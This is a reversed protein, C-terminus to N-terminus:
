REYTHTPVPPTQVERKGYRKSGSGAGKRLPERRKTGNTSCFIVFNQSIKRLKERNGGSKSERRGEGAERGKEGPSGGEQEMGCLLRSTALRTKANLRRIKSKMLSSLCLSKLGHVAVPFLVKEDKASVTLKKNM